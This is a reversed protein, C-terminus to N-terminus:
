WLQAWNPPKTGQERTGWSWTSRTGAGVVLISEMNQGSQPKLQSGNAALVLEASCVSSSKIFGCYLIFLKLWFSEKQLTNWARVPIRSEKIQKAKMGSVFIFWNKGQFFAEM